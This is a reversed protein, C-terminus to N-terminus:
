SASCHAAPASNHNLCLGPYSSKEGFDCKSCAILFWIASLMHLANDRNDATFKATLGISPPPSNKYYQYTINSHVIEVPNYNAQHSFSITPTYPFILGSSTGLANRLLGFFSAGKRLDPLTTIKSGLTYIVKDVFITEDRQYTKPSVTLAVRKDVNGYAISDKDQIGTVNINSPKIPSLKSTIGDSIKNIIPSCGCMTSKEANSGISALVQGSVLKDVM